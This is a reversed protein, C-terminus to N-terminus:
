LLGRVAKLIEVPGMECPMLYAPEKKRLSEIIAVNAYYPTVLVIESGKANTSDVFNALFDIKIQGLNRWSGAINDQISIANQWHIFMPTMKRAAVTSMSPFKRIAYAEM